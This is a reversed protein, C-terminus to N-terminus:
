PMKETLVLRQGVWVLLWRDRRELQITLPLLSPIPMATEGLHKDELLLRLHLRHQQREVWLTVPVSSLRASQPVGAPLGAPLTLAIVEHAIWGQPVFPQVAGGREPALPILAQDGMMLWFQKLTVSPNAWLGVKGKAAVQAHVLPIGNLYGIVQSPTLQIALRYLANHQLWLREGALVTIRKQQHWALAMEVAGQAVEDPRLRLVGWENDSRWAWVLGMEHGQWLVDAIWWSPIPPDALLAIAPRGTLSRLSWAETGSRWQGEQAPFPFFADDSTALTACWWRKGIVSRVMPLPEEGSEVWLGVQGIAFELAQCVNIVEDDLGLWLQDGSRWVQLRHWHFPSLAFSTDWLIKEQWDGESGCQFRVLQLRMEDMERRWRWMYGGEEGWGFAIGISKGGNLRVEATITFDTLGEIFPRLPVLQRRQLRTPVFALDGESTVQPHWDDPLRWVWEANPLSPLSMWVPSVAEGEILVRETPPLDAFAFAILRRDLYAFWRFGDRRVTVQLPNVLPPLLESWGMPQGQNKWQGRLPTISLSM